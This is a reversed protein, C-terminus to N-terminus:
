KKPIKKKGTNIIHKRKTPKIQLIQLRKQIEEIDLLLKKSQSAQTTSIIKILEQVSNIEDKCKVKESIEEIIEITEAKSNVIQSVVNSFETKQVETFNEVLFDTNKKYTDGLKEFMESLESRFNTLGDAPNVAPQYYDDNRQSFDSYNTLAQFRNINKSPPIRNM